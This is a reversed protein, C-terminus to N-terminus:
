VMAEAADDSLPLGGSKWQPRLLEVLCPRPVARVAAACSQPCPGESPAATWSLCDAQGFAQAFRTTDAYGCEWALM